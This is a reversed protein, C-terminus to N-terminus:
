AAQDALDPTQQEDTPRGEYEITCRCNAQCESAGIPVIEEIPIFEETAFDECDACHAAGDELVRRGREVGSESQRVAVGNEYTSFASNAYLESRALQQEESVQGHAVQSGFQNLYENQKAIVQGVRGWDQARMQDKGGRAMIAMTRHLATVEDRMALEWTARSIDGAVERETLARMRVKAASSIESVFRKMTAESLVTETETSYYRGTLKDFVFFVGASLAASLFAHRKEPPM